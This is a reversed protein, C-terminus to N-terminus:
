AIDMYIRDTFDFMRLRIVIDGIDFFVENPTLRKVMPSCGVDSEYDEYTPNEINYIEQMIKKYEEFTEYLDYGEKINEIIEEFKDEAKDDEINWIEVSSSLFSEGELLKVIQKM